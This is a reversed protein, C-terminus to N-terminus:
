AAPRVTHGQAFAVIDGAPRAGTLRGVERGGAFMLLAPIGRIAHTMAADPAEETNLKAFRVQGAMTNAAKVFEPAMMLCPGCWPAWFDVLIPLQDNRLVKALVQPTIEAVDGGTLAHGCAACKPGQGLRASPVRNVQGCALCTLTLTSMAIEQV